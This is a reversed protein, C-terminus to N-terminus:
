AREQDLLRRQAPIGFFYAIITKVDKRRMAGAEQDNKRQRKISTFSKRRLGELRCQRLRNRKQKARRDLWRYELDQIAARAFLGKRVQGGDM